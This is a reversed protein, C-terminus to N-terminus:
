VFVALAKKTLPWDEGIVRKVAKLPDSNRRKEARHQEAGQTAMVFDFATSAATYDNWEDVIRRAKKDWHAQRTEWGDEKAVDPRQGITYTLANSFDSKTLFKVDQLKAVTEMTDAKAGLMVKFARYAEEARAEARSTHRVKVTNVTGSLNFTNECVAVTSASVVGLPYSGDHSWYVWMYSQALDGPVRGLNWAGGIGICVVNVKGGYLTFASELWNGEIELLAQVFMYGTENTLVGYRESHVGLIFAEDPTPWSPRVLAKQTGRLTTITGDAHQMPIGGLPLEVPEWTIDAAERIAWIDAPPNDGFVFREGLVNGDGDKVIGERMWPTRKYAGASVGGLITGDITDIKNFGM